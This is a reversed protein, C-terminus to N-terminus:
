SVNGVWLIKGCYTQGSEKNPVISLVIFTPRTGTHDNKKRM